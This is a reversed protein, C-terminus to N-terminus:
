RSDFPGFEEFAPYLAQTMCVYAQQQSINAAFIGRQHASCCQGKSKRGQIREITNRCLSRSNSSLM